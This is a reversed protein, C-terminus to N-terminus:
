SYRFKHAKLSSKVNLTIFQCSLFIMLSSLKDTKNNMYNRSIMAESSAILNACIIIVCLASLQYTQPNGQSQVHM